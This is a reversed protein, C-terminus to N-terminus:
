AHFIGLLYFCASANGGALLEFGAWAVSPPAGFGGLHEPLELNNWGGEYFAALAKRVSPPLTVNGKGDFTATERDGSAFSPSWVDDVMDRLGSLAERATAEDMTSFPGRGLTTSGIDLVEFLNFFIDRLNAKYHHVTTV